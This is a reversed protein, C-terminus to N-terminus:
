VRKAMRLTDFDDSYDQLAFFGQKEYFPIASYSKSHYADVTLFYCKRDKAMKSLESVITTGYGKERLDKRVALYDIELTPYMIGNQIQFDEDLYGWPKGLPIDEFEGKNDVFCGASTIFMAVIGLGDESVVYLCYRPDRKLFSGLIGHIFDDMIQIGCEFEKLIDASSEQSYRLM